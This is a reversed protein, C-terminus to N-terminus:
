HVQCPLKISTIDVHGWHSFDLNGGCLPVRGIELPGERHEEYWSASSYKWDVAKKVLGKRVPNNHIYKVMEMLAKENNVNRDYGSGPQWFRFERQGNQRTITLKELWVIDNEILWEKARKSVSQKIRKLFSSINYEKRRPWVLLHVHEPMIVYAIVSFNLEKRAKDIAEVLWNQSRERNLLPLSQYCSFTLEHADGPDNYYHVKKRKETKM